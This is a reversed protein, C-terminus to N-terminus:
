LEALRNIITRSHDTHLEAIQLEVDPGFLLDPFAELRRVWLNALDLDKRIRITHRESISIAHVSRTLNDVTETVRVLSANPLLEDFTVTLSDSDWPEGPFGVAVWDTLACLLLPMGEAPPLEINECSHFRNEVVKAIGDLLPVTTTLSMFFLFEENAGANGLSLIADFFSQGAVCEIEQVPKITRLELVTVRKDFLDAMGSAIDRLHEVVREQSFGSLSSHNLVMERM